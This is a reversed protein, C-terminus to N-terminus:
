TTKTRVPLSRRAEALALEAESVVAEATTLLMSSSAVIAAVSDDHEDQADTTHM